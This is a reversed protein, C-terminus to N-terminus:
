RHEAYRRLTYTLAIPVMVVVGVVTLPVRIDNDSRAALGVLVMAASAVIKGAFSSMSAITARVKSVAEHQLDNSAHLNVLRIIRVFIFIAAIQLMPTMGIFVTACLTILGAALAIFQNKRLWTEYYHATWLLVMTVLNGITMLLAVTKDTQGTHKYFINIQEIFTVMLALILASRLFIVRLRPSQRIAGSAERVLSRISVEHADEIRDKPLIYVVVLAILTAAISGILINKYDADLLFSVLGAFTFAALHISVTQQRLRNYASRDKLEDYTYAEVSGSLLADGLSLLVIGAMFGFYSPQWLWLPFALLRALRGLQMSRWRGFKDAVIGTPIEFVMILVQWVALLTGVQLADLGGYNAFMLPVLAYIPIAEATFEALLVRGKLSKLPKM